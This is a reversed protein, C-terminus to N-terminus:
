PTAWTRRSEGEVAIPRSMERMRDVVRRGEFEIAADLEHELVTPHHNTLFITTRNANYRRGVLTGLQEVQWPTNRGVGVEDLVLISPEALAALIAPRPGERDDMADKLERWLDHLDVYRMHPARGHENARTMVVRRLAAVTAHTKGVGKPGHLFLGAAGPRWTAAWRALARHLEERDDLRATWFRAPIAAERWRAARDDATGCRPCRRTHRYGLDDTSFLWGRECACDAHCVCRVASAFGRDHRFAVGFGGCAACTPDPQEQMAASM